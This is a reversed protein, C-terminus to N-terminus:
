SPQDGRNKNSMAGRFVAVLRDGEWLEVDHEGYMQQARCKASQEDTCDLKAACIVRRSCDMVFVRYRMVSDWEFSAAMRSSHENFAADFYACAHSVNTRTAIRSYSHRSSKAAPVADPIRGLTGRILLTIDGRRAALPELKLNLADGADDATRRAL